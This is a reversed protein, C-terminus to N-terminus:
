SAVGSTNILTRRLDLLIAMNRAEQLRNKEEMKEEMERHQIQDQEFALQLVRLQADIQKQEESMHEEKPVAYNRLTLDIIPKAIADLVSKLAQKDGSNSLQMLNHLLYENRFSTAMDDGEFRSLHAYFRLLDKRIIQLLIVEREEMAWIGERSCAMLKSDQGLLLANHNEPHEDDARVMACWAAM